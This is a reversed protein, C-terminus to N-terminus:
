PCPAAKIDALIAHCFDTLTDDRAGMVVIRDDKRAEARIFDRILDRTPLHRAMRGGSTVDNILDASSIDKQATGGAYYIDPMLLVDNAAMGRVFSEVIERRMMKMPGFGHPQFIVILRGPTQRLASLSAAIKDPNHAFDDIVSIDHARGVFELRRKVGKFSSLALACDALPVGAMRAAGMATLANEVNHRGPVPLIVNVSGVGQGESVRFRVEDAGYVINDAFLTAAKNSHSFTVTRQPNEATLCSAEPDDLNVVAGEKAKKLFDIFLPRIQDVPKHDLTINTLVSIAPQYLAISGDSEDAEIVIIGSKGIVANGLGQAGQAVANMMTAGNIVTADLGAQNLIHGLMGTVTSKGSTGGVAIGRRSNFIEALLEARKQIPINLARAAKVDPISEEIASSVVLTSVSADIGSGDQPYIVVGADALAKFKDPSHGQDHSRDSGKVVHGESILALALASMGSGGIGCFFYARPTGTM